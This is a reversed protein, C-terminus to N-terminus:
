CAGHTTRADHNVHSLQGADRIVLSKAQDVFVKWGWPHRICKRRMETTHQIHRRYNSGQPHTLFLARDHHVNGPIRHETFDKEADETEVAAEQLNLFCQIPDSVTM